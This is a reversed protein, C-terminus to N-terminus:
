PTRKGVVSMASKYANKILNTGGASATFTKFEFKIEHMMPGSGAYDLISLHDIVTCDSYLLTDVINSQTDLLDVKIDFGPNDILHQVTIHEQNTVSQEVMLTVEKKVLNLAAAVMAGTFTAPTTTVEVMFRNQILPMPILSASSSTSSSKKPSNPNSTVPASTTPM